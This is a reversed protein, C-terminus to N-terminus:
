GGTRCAAYQVRSIQFVFMSSVTREMLKATSSTRPTGTAKEMPRADIAVTRYEPMGTGMTKWFVTPPM